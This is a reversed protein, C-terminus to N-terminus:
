SITYVAKVSSGSKVMTDKHLHYTLQSKLGLRDKYIRGISLIADRNQFNATWIAIKDIKPRVNVVAGCIEDASEFAEGILCLITDLWYKDLDQRQGRPVNVMWRGGRKNAEDEWMPRIGAKFLCYDSGVKVDSPSKIHNYLSWFDEVTSFSTVENLTDEWSKSRDPELYWLTWTFQLPHKILCEPDVVANQDAHNQETSEAQKYDYNDYPYLEDMPPRIQAYDYASPQLQHRRYRNRSLMM